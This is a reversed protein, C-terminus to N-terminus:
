NTVIHRTTQGCGLLTLAMVEFKVTILTLRFADVYLKKNFLVILILLLM